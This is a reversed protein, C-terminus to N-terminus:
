IQNKIEMAARNPIVFSVCGGRTWRTGRDDGSPCGGYVCKLRLVEYSYHHGIRYAKKIRGNAHEAFSNSVTRTSFMSKCNIYNLISDRWETITHPVSGFPDPWPGQGRYGKKYKARFDDVFESVKRLWEDTLEEAKERDTLQLIVSFEEKLGHARKLDPVDALWKDLLEKDSPKKVGRDDKKEKRKKREKKEEDALKRYSALLLHEPRMHERHESYTMSDRIVNLVKKLAVNLLNHVHYRDVM